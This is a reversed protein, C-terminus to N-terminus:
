VSALCQVLDDLIRRHSFHELALTRARRGLKERVNTDRLTLLQSVFEEPRVAMLVADKFPYGALAWPVTVTPIGRCLPEYLKQHMGVRGLSPTIAIDMTKMFAGYDEIYGEYRVNPPLTAVIKPPLKAGTVHIVFAGPAARELAPAIDRLVLMAGTRNHAVSFTSGSFLVHLPRQERYAIPADELLASLSRLPITFVKRAGRKRYQEAENKNIAVVVDTTRAMTREGLEKGFARVLNLIGYGEDVLVHTSEIQLSRVITRIGRKKLISLLPWSFSADLWAVDPKFDTITEEIARRIGPETYEFAAGDLWRLDTFRRWSFGGKTYPVGVVPVGLSRSMAEAKGGQYSAVKAIVSVEHGLEKFMKIGELRDAEDAGSAPWPLKPTIVLVKM